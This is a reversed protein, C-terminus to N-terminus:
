FPIDDEPVGDPLKKGESKEYAAELKKLTDLQTETDKLGYEARRKQDDGFKTAIYEGLVHAAEANLNASELLFAFFQHTDDVSPSVPGPSAPPATPAPSGQAQKAAQGAEEVDLDFFNAFERLRTHIQEASKGDFTGMATLVRISMEQSHQRLIRASREPDRESEPQWSGKPSNNQSGASGTSAERPAGDPEPELKFRDGQGGERKELKGYVRDGVTVESPSKRQWYADDSDLGGDLNKLGCYWKDLTGGHPNDRQGANKARTIEFHALIAESM